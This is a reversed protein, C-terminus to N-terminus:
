TIESPISEKYMCSYINNGPTSGSIITKEMRVSTSKKYEKALESIYKAHIQQPRFNM